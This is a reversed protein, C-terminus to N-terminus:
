WRVEFVMRCPHPKGEMLAPRFCWGYAWDELEGVHAYDAGSLAVAKVAGQADVTMEFTVTGSFGPLQPKEPVSAPEASRMALSGPDKGERALREAVAADLAPRPLSEPTKRFLRAFFNM